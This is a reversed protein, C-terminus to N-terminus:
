YGPPQWRVHIGEASVITERSGDERTVILEGSPGNGAAIGSIERDGSVVTVARGRLWDRRAIEGLVEPWSGACARVRVDLRQLFRVAFSARDVARGSELFASTMRGSLEEPIVDATLNLNVGVGAIVVGGDPAPNGEVLIGSIKRDHVFIDNPWKIRALGDLGPLSDLADCVALACAHTIRPWHERPLSPRLVVSVLLNRGPPSMWETGRRGRGRSQWDAFVASGDPAGERAMVWADDNTSQTVARFEFRRGTGEMASRIHAIDLPSETM